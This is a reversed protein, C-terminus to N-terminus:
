KQDMGKGEVGEEMFRGLLHDRSSIVKEGDGEHLDHRSIVKFERHHCDRGM